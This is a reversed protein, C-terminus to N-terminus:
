KWLGTMVVAETWGIGLCVRIGDWGIEDGLLGRWSRSTKVKSSHVKEAIMCLSLSMMVVRLGGDM